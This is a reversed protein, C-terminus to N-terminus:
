LDFNCVRDEIDCWKQYGRTCYYAAKACLGTPFQPVVMQAAAAGTATVGAYRRQSQYVSAEATFGPLSKTTNM